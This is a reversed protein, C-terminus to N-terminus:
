AEESTAAGAGAGFISALLGGKSGAVDANSAKSGPGRSSEAVAAPEASFSVEDEEVVDLSGEADDDDPSLQDHSNTLNGIDSWDVTSVRNPAATTPKHNTRTTAPGRTICSTRAVDHLHLSQSLMQDHPSSVSNEKEPHQHHQQGPSNMALFEDGIFVNPEQDRQDEDDDVVSSFTVSPLEENCTQFSESTCNSNDRQHNELLVKQAAHAAGSGSSRSHHDSGSSAVTPGTLHVVVGAPQQQVLAPSLESNVVLTVDPATWVDNEYERSERLPKVETPILAGAATSTASSSKPSNLMSPAASSSTTTAGVNMGTMIGSSHVTSNTTSKTTSDNKDDIFLSGPRMQDLKVLLKSNSEQESSFTSVAVTEEVFELPPASSFSSSSASTTTVVTTSTQLDEQIVDTILNQNTTSERANNVNNLSIKLSRPLFARDKMSEDQIANLSANLAALNELNLEHCNKDNDSLITQKLKNKKRKLSTSSSSAATIQEVCCAQETGTDCNGENNLVGDKIANDDEEEDVESPSKSGYLSGLLSNPTECNYLSGLSSNSAASSTRGSRCGPEGCPEDEYSDSNNCGDSVSNIDDVVHMSVETCQSSNDDDEDEEEEFASRDPLPPSGARKANQIAAALGGKTNTGIKNKASSTQLISKPQNPNVHLLAPPQLVQQASKNKEKKKKASARPPTGPRFNTHINEDNEDEEEEQEDEDHDFWNGIPDESERMARTRPTDAIDFFKVEAHEQEPPFNLMPLCKPPFQQQHQQQATRNMGPRTSMVMAPAGQRNANTNRLTAIDKRDEDPIVSLLMRKAKAIEEEAQEMAQLKEALKEHDLRKTPDEGDEVKPTRAQRPPAPSKGRTFRVKKRQERLSRPPAGAKKM